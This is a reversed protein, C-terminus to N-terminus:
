LADCGTKVPTQSIAATISSRLGVPELFGATFGNGLFLFFFFFFSGIRCSQGAAGDVLGGSVGAVAAARMGMAAGADGGGEDAAEASRMGAARTRLRQMGCGGSCGAAAQALVLSSRRDTEANGDSGAACCCRAGGRLNGGCCGRRSM